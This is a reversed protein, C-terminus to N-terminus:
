NRKYVQISNSIRKQLLKKYNLVVKSFGDCYSYSEFCEVYNPSSYCKQTPPAIKCDKCCNHNSNSCQAGKRLKCNFDCCPDMGQRGVVGADCEEDDEVRDNGCFSMTEARFCRSKARLVETISNRSCPSFFYNNKEHGQNSYAYMIFNGGIGTSPTCEPKLPDHESGWNHGFEHATVLEAERQLLRGQKLSASKFSSLGTNVSFLKSGRSSRTRPSCVGGLSYALPSSVYALGLVSNEFAQFTFLHALCYATWDEEGFLELIRDANTSSNPNNYHDFRDTTPETHVIIKEISFGYNTLDERSPDDENQVNWVTKLYIGNISAIVNM